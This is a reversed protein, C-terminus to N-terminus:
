PPGGIQRFRSDRYFFQFGSSFSVLGLNLYYVFIVHDAPLRPFSRRLVTPTVTMLVLLVSRCNSGYTQTREQTNSFRQLDKAKTQITGVQDAHADAHDLRDSSAM